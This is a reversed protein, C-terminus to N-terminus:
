PRVERDTADPNHCVVCADTRANRNSGHASLQGHCVNCNQVSVIERRPPSVFAGTQDFVTVETPVPVRLFKGSAHPDAIAPHGELVVTATTVEAPLPTPSTVSFTNTQGAVATSSALADIQVPQGPGPKHTTANVYGSGANTYEDSSWGIDIALRSNGQPAKFAPDNKIDYPTNNTPNLVQFTVVPKRDPGVVVSNIQYKFSAVAQAEPIAHVTDVPAVGSGAAHCAACSADSSQPGGLHNCPATVGFGCATTGASSDFKVNDHCSACAVQTPTTKWADANAGSHCVSCERIDRPFVVDSFDVYTQRFGVVFFPQGNKVSPLNEGRHIKHILSRFDITNGSEPDAYTTGAQDAAHCTKCLQTGTRRDHAELSGHCANCAQDTVTEFKQGAAGSAPIFDFTANAPTATTEGSASVTRTAWIGVKHSKTRDLKSPTTTPATFTFTYVGDNDGSPQLHGATVSVSGPQTASTGAPPTVQGGDPTTYPNAKVTSEYYSTYTGDAELQSVVFRPSMAPAVAPSAAANTIEQPLDNIPNGAADTLKFTVTPPGSAPVTASQIQINLQSPTSTGAAHIAHVTAVDAVAGTGHCAACTNDGAPATSQPGGAHNCATLVGAACTAAASGDFKVNAHCSTCVAATKGIRVNDAANAADAGSDVTTNGAVAAIPLAYSTGTHCIACNEIQGPFGLPFVNQSGGFGVITVPFASRIESAHIEHILVKFDIAQDGATAGGDGATGANENPTQRASSCSAVAVGIGLAACGVVSLSRAMPDEWAAAVVSQDGPM